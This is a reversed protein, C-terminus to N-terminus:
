PQSRTGAWAAGMILLAALAINWTMAHQNIQMLLLTSALPTLYSLVGIQRVDGRKLAMDWLYFALGLPGLGM